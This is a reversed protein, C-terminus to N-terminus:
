PAPPWAADVWAECSRRAVDARYFCTARPVRVREGGFGAKFFGIARDKPTPVEFLQPGDPIAGLELWRLGRTRYYQVAADIMTHGVGPPGAYGPADAASGYYAHGSRHFFYAAGVATGEFRLVVLMAQDQQLMSWQQEFTESPRTRRGAAAVHLAEYVDHSPRHQQHADVVQVDFIRRGRNILSRYSDRMARRQLEPATSLDLVATMSDHRLAGAPQWSVVATPPVPTPWWWRSSSLAHQERLEAVHEDLTRVDARDSGSVWIPAPCPGGGVALTAGAGDQEVFAPAIMAIADHEDVLAFSADGLLRSGTYLRQYALWPRHYWFPAAARAAAADWDADSIGDAPVVRLTM